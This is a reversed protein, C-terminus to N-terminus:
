VIVTVWAGLVNGCKVAGLSVNTSGVTWWWGGDQALYIWVVEECMFKLDCCIMYCWLSTFCTKPTLTREKTKKKKVWCATVCFNLSCFSYPTALVFYSLPKQGVWTKVNQFHYIAAMSTFCRNCIMHCFKVFWMELQPRWLYGNWWDAWIICVKIAVMVDSCTCAIFIYM